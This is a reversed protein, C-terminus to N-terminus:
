KSKTIIEFHKVIAHYDREPLNAQIECMWDHESGGRGADLEKKLAVAAERPTHNWSWSDVVYSRHRRLDTRNRDKECRSCKCNPCNM